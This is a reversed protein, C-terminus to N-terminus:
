AGNVPEFRERTRDTAYVFQGYVGDVVTSSCDFAAALM